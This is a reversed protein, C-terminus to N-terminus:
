SRSRWIPKIRFIPRSKAAHNRYILHGFYEVFGPTCGESNCSFETLRTSSPRYTTCVITGDSRQVMRPLEDALAVIRCNAPDQQVDSAGIPTGARDVIMVGVWSDFLVWKGLDEVWIESTAHCYPILDRILPAYNFAEVARVKLGKVGESAHLFMDRMGQCMIAFDGTRIRDLKTQFPQELFESYNKSTPGQKAPQQWLFSFLGTALRVEPFSSDGVPGIESLDPQGRFELRRVAPTPGDAVSISRRGLITYGGPKEFSFKKRLWMSSQRVLEFWSRDAFVFISYETEEPEDQLSIRIEMQDNVIEKSQRFIEDRVIELPVTRTRTIRITRVIKDFAIHLTEPALRVGSLRPEAGTM